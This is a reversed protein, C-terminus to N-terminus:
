VKSLFARKLKGDDLTFVDRVKYSVGDVTIADANKIGALKDAPFTISYNSSAVRDGLLSDGPADLIVNATLAGLTAVVAFADASFFADVDEVLM